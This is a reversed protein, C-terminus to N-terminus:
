DYGGRSAKDAGSGINEQFGSPHLSAKSESDSM